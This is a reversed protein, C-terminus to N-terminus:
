EAKKGSEKTATNDNGVHPLVADNGLKEDIDKIKKDQDLIFAEMDTATKQVLQIDGKKGAEALEDQKEATIKMLYVTADHLEQFKGPPSLKAQKDHLDHMKKATQEVLKVDFKVKVKKGEQQMSMAHQQEADHAAEFSQLNTYCAERYGNIQKRAYFEYGGALGFCAVAFLINGSIKM